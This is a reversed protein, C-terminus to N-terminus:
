GADARSFNGHGDGRVLLGYGAAYIGTEPKARYQNGSLLIDSAGDHTFDDVVIAYVPFFQAEVPLIHRVFTGNGKNLWVATELAYANLVLANALQEPTFIDEMGKGQYDRFHLYKKKLSPIQGILDPRLVIPYSKGQVFHTTVHEVTGNQDFDNVYMTVPETTTAKFRSNLGHNGAVFDVLGDKNFDGIELAHYWGDTKDLGYATSRDVFKGQEQVFLKIPMWEGVLLLDIFGDQNVDLWRAATTMGLPLMEPAVERTVDKFNGMGDNNLLYGNAPVGYVDPVLRAGVFLDQDGDQDYDYAAVASSSELRNQVPLLQRSKNLQGNGVNFYLRDLLSISSSSFETSGSTVYIDDKGDGNADFIACGTDESGKDREFVEENTRLFTGPNQQVYLAGAQSKAGGVYFDDRGDGNIDGVCVCPGENSNMSFILHDRDFDVFDNEVHVFDVGRMLGETFVTEGRKDPVRQTAKGDKEYLHILQGAAVNTMLSVKENPWEIVVTDVMDNNGLGFVIRYDVTSMFGRM